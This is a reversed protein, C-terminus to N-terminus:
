PKYYKFRFSLIVIRNNATKALEFQDWSVISDREVRFLFHYRSDKKQNDNVSADWKILTNKKIRGLKQYDNITKIIINRNKKLESDSISRLCLNDEGKNLYEYFPKLM